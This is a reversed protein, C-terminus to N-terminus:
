IPHIISRTLKSQQSAARTYRRELAHQSSRLVGEGV